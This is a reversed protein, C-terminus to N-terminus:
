KQMPELLIAIEGASSAAPIAAMAQALKEADVSGPTGTLMDFVSATKLGSFQTLYRTRLAYLQDEHGLMALAIAHRLIAAQDVDSLRKARPLSGRTEDTLTQWDRQKWLIEARLAASGPVDQLVAFAESTRGLHTLAVAEVRKRQHQMADPYSPDASRKIVDLARDSRGALIHLGAVRASLTGRALDGARHFLQYDLLDAARAYMSAAQLRQALRSVLLDGEAGSPALDRYEWYLGAAQELPMKSNPDLADKLTAQLQPLFETSRGTGNFFRFLTAGANLASQADGAEANLQYTLRLAREEIADGRWIYRLANLRKLAEDSKIAGTKVDAEIQSLRADMKLVMGGSNEVRAFRLRSEDTKGLALEARGRLLNTAPDRDPASRLWDLAIGPKEMEIAARAAALRFLPNPRDAFASEACRTQQLAQESFGSASLARMRWICAEPNTALGPTSLDGSASDYRGLQVLAAGRALRFADVMMLDPDDQRMVELVGFAEAGREQGIMSRAYDFRAQQRDRPVATALRRWAHDYTIVQWAQPGSLEAQQALDAAFGPLRPALTPAAAPAPEPATDAGILLAASALLLFRKM